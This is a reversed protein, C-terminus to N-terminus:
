HRRLVRKIVSDAHPDVFHFLATSRIEGPSCEENTHISRYGNFFYINGPVLRVHKILRYNRSYFVRLIKQSLFNDLLIKDFLNRLYFSRIRRTNPIILLDGLKGSEPMIIPILATLAYSDYHFKLSNEKGSNGSLCRLVQYVPGHPAKAGSSGEYIRHCLEMFDADAPLAKLFTGELDEVGRFVVYEGANQAVKERVFDQTLGLALPNVYHPVCAFGDADIQKSIAAASEVSSTHPSVHMTSYRHRSDNV